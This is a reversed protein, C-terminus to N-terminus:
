LSCLSSSLQLDVPQYIWDQQDQGLYKVILYCTFSLSTSPVILAQYLSLVFLLVTHRLCTKVKSSGDDRFDELKPGPKM